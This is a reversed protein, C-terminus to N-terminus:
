EEMSGLVCSTELSMNRPFLGYFFPAETGFDTLLPSPPLPDFPQHDHCSKPKKIQGM